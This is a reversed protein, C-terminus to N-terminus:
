PKPFLLSSLGKTLDVGGERNVASIGSAWLALIGFLTALSNHACLFSVRTEQGGGRPGAAQRKGTFEARSIRQQEATKGAGCM